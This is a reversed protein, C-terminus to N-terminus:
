MKMSKKKGKASARKKSGKTSRAKGAKKSAKSSAKKKKTSTAAKAKKRSTKKKKSPAPGSGPKRRRKVVFGQERLERNRDRRDEDRIKKAREAQKDKSAALRNIVRTDSKYVALERKFANEYPQKSAESMGKWEKACLTVAKVAGARGQYDQPSEKLLQKRREVVFRIFSSAPRKVEWQKRWKERAKDAVSKAEQYKQEYPQKQEPTLARWATSIKGATAVIDNSGLTAFQEKLFQAYASAARKPIKPEKYDKSSFWRANSISAWRSGLGLNIRLVGKASLM